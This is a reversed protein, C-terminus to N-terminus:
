VNSERFSKHKMENLYNDLAEAITPSNHYLKKMENQYNSVLGSLVKECKEESLRYNESMWKYDFDAAAAALREHWFHHGVLFFLLTESGEDFSGEGSLWPISLMTMVMIVAHQYDDEFEELSYQQRVSESLSQYYLAKMKVEVDRRTAVNLSLLLFYALDYTGRSIRAAQWDIFHVKKNGDILMNGIRSDGHILTQNQNMHAWNHQFVKRTDKDWISWCSSEFFDAIFRPISLIGPVTKDKLGWFESHFLAFQKVVEPIMDVPCGDVENFEEPIKLYEMLIVSNATLKNYETKYVKPLANQVKKDKSLIAYFNIEKLHNEQLNFIARNSLSGLSPSFKAICEFSHEKDEHQYRITILSTDSRFIIAANLAKCEVSLITAGAPIQNAELLAKVVWEKNHTLAKNDKPFNEKFFNKRDLYVIVKSIQFAIFAVIWFLFLTIKRM